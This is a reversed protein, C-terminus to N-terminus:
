TGSRREEESEKVRGSRGGLNINLAEMIAQAQDKPVKSIFQLARALRLGLETMIVRSVAPFDRLLQLFFTKEIRLVEMDSHAQVTATRPVECLVGIEGFIGHKGIVAVTLPGHETKIVVEAQGSIIVYISDTHDGEQIAVEGPSYHLRESAFAILKLKSEAIEAFLPIERLLQIEEKLSM